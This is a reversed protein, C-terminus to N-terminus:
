RACRIAAGLRRASRMSISGILRGTEDVVPFPQDTTGRLAHDLAQALSMTAPIM